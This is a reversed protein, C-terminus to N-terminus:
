HSLLHQQCHQGPGPHQHLRLTCRSCFDPSGPPQPEWPQNRRSVYNSGDTHKSLKTPTASASLFSPFPWLFVFPADPAHYFYGTTTSFGPGTCGHNIERVVSEGFQKGVVTTRSGRSTYTCCRCSWSGSSRPPTKPPPFFSM